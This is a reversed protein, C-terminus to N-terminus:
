PKAYADYKDLNNDRIVGMILDVYSSDTAYGARRLAEVQERPNQASFVGNQRYRENETLFVWHNVVSATISDFVRWTAMVEIRVGNVEEVTLMDITPGTWSAHAKVGFLNKAQVALRSKGWGSELIAQAMTVSAFVRSNPDKKMNEIAGNKISAIFKDNNTMNPNDIIWYAVSETAITNMPWNKASNEKSNPDNMTVSGDANIGTLVIIHHGKIITGPVVSAIVVSGNKLATEVDKYNSTAKSSLGTAKPLQTFASHNTGLTPNEGGNAKSWVSAEYPDFVGDSNLDLSTINGNLGTVVMALSTVGCGAIGITEPIYVGNESRGSYPKSAWREDWQIFLPILGGFSGGAGGSTGGGGGINMDKYNGKIIKDIMDNVFSNNPMSKLTMSMLELDSIHLNNSNLTNIFKNPNFNLVLEGQIDEKTDTKLIEKTYKKTTVTRYVPVQKYKGNWEKVVITKNEYGIIGGKVYETKRKKFKFTAWTFIDEVKYKPIRILDNDRKKYSFVYYDTETRKFEYKKLINRNSNINADIEIEGKTNGLEYKYIDTVVEEYGYIPKSYDPVVKSVDVMIKEGNVYHDLVQETTVIPNGVIQPNSFKGLTEVDRITTSSYKGFMSDVEKIIPIPEKVTVYTVKASNKTSSQIIEKGGSINPDSKTVEVWEKRSNKTTFYTNEEFKFQPNLTKGTDIVSKNEKELASGKVIDMAGILQWPTIYTKTIDRVDLKVGKESSISKNEEGVTGKETIQIGSIEGPVSAREIDMYMWLKRPDLFSGSKMLEEAEKDSLNKSKLYPDSNNSSFINFMDLVATTMGYIIVIICAIILLDTITGVGLSQIVLKGVKAKSNKKKNKLHGIAFKIIGTLFGM